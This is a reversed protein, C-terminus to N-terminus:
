GRRGRILSAAAHRFDAVDLELVVLARPQPHRHLVAVPQVVGQVMGVVVPRERRHAADVVDLGPDLVRRPVDGVVRVLLVDIIHRRGLTHPAVLHADVPVRQSDALLELDGQRRIRAIGVEVDPRRVPLLPARGPHAILLAIQYIALGDRRRHGPNVLDLDIAVGRGLIM